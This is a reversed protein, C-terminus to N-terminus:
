KKIGLYHRTYLAAVGFPDQFQHQTKILEARTAPGFQGDEAIGTKGDHLVHNIKRQLELVDPGHLPPTKLSLPRPDDPHPTPHPNVHIPTSFKMIKALNIAGLMVPSGSGPPDEWDHQHVGGVGKYGNVNSPGSNGGITRLVNASPREVIREIHDGDPNGGSWHFIIADGPKGDWSNVTADHRQAYLWFDPVYSSGTVEGPQCSPLALDCLRNVDTYFDDCWAERARGLDTSFRNTCDYGHGDYLGDFSLAKAVLEARAEAETLVPTTM